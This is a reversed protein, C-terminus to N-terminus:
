FVYLLGVGEEFSCDYDSTYNASPNPTTTLIPKPLGPGAIAGFPFVQCFRSDQFIIDDLAVSGPLGGNLGVIQIAYPNDSYFALSGYNWQKGQDKGGVRWISYTETTELDIVNITLFGADAGSIHYWFTLCRGHPGTSYQFVNSTLYAM